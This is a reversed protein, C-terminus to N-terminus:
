GTDASTLTLAAGELQLEYQKAQPEGFYEYPLLRLTQGSLSYRGRDTSAYPLDPNTSRLDLQYRGDSRLLLETVQYGEDLVWIGVLPDDDAAMRGAGVDSRAWPIVAGGSSMCVEMAPTSQVGPRVGARLRLACCSRQM